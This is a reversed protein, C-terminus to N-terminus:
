VEVINTGNIEILSYKISKEGRGKVDQIKESHNSINTKIVYIYSSRSSIRCISLISFSFAGSALFYITVRKLKVSDYLTHCLLM